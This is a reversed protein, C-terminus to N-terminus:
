VLSNYDPIEALFNYKSQENDVWCAFHEMGNSVILYKVSLKSNYTAAQDFTDQSLKIHPAKFEIIMTPAYETNYVVADCRKKLGNINIEKEIALRSLPYNKQEILYQMFHQRVYEEPTLTVFKKRISDFILQKNNQIKIRFKYEPLNLQWMKIVKTQRISFANM